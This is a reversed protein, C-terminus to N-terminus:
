QLSFTLTGDGWLGGSVMSPGGPQPRSLKALIEPPLLLRAGEEKDVARTKSSM